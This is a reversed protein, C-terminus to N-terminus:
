CWSRGRCFRGEHNDDDDGPNVYVDPDAPTTTPAACTRGNTDAARLDSVYAASADNEGAYVATHTGRVMATGFDYGDVQVYRLERGYSDRDVGPEATLTVAEGFLAASAAATAQSGGYTNAECSDIGLVRIKRGGAVEFTDGDVVRVVLTTAGSTPATASPAAPPGPTASPAAPSTPAPDSTPAPTAGGGMCSGAILLFALVGVVWPWRPRQQPQRHPTPPPQAIPM